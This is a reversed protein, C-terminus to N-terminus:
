KVIQTRLAAIEVDIDDIQQKATKGTKPNTSTRGLTAERQMRTTISSELSIIAAALLENKRPTDLAIIEWQQVWVGNTLVPAADSIRQTLPDFPPPTVLKLESVGYLTAEELSLRKATTSCSPSWDVVEGPMVFRLFIGNPAHVYKM